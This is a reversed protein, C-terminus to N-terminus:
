GRARRLMRTRGFGCRAWGSGKRLSQIQSRTAGHGIDRVYIGAKLPNAWRKAVTLTQRESSHAIAIEPALALIQDSVRACSGFFTRPSLRKLWRGDNRM